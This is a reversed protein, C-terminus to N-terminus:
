LRQRDKPGKQKVALAKNYVEITRQAIVDWLLLSEARQRGMAAIERRRSDDKLLGVIAEALGQPDNEEVWTGAEGLHDPLGARRTGIVPVGNAMATVAPLGAFSGTYPLVCLLSKQYEAIAADYSIQNLWQIGNEVGVERACRLGFEPTTEGYHGHIKLLPADQGMREKVLVLAKFLTELGKGSHIRHGGYFIIGQRAMDSVPRIEVGYGVIDVRESDVGFGVLEDKMEHTHVIIRDAQNYKMIFKPFDMQYPDLEHVTVVRAATSPLDLWNYLAVSGYANLTQQFHIVDAAASRQQYRKARQWYILNRAVNRVHYKIPNESKFYNIHPFEFYDCRKDQFQRRVEVPDGCGCNSTVIGVEAKLRRELAQRLGDSYAGYSTAFWCSIIKVNM